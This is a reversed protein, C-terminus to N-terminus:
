VGTEAHVRGAKVAAALAHYDKETQDAYARAFKALADDFVEGKGLYGAILCPDGSRAHARALVWGCLEAYDCLDDPSMKEIEAAGKMDRLIRFYCYHGDLSAWGLFIDSAAQMLRQGCVVRRGHNKYPSPGLHPELVSEQAEKVQLLLPDDQHNSDLLIVYCRTGVSGVGVVKLAFDLFRYRELLHRRDEQLSARYGRFLDRLLKGREENHVHMLIPPHEVLQLRGDVMTTIKPLVQLTNRQRAKQITRAWKRQGGRHFIQLAAQADVRSFWVDLLPMRSFELMRGRYSRSCAGVADAAEVDHFGNCRGAVFISAALRKLDWEWPGALTEDFDNIDFLLNREPSAYVGFNRLHADGCIQARFGTIPTRALDSAMVIPSGRLFAFPSELMRGYRIPVLEPLRSQHSKELLAIPDPRGSAPKWRRHSSRPVQRRRAKGAELREAPPPMVPALPAREPSTETENLTSAM